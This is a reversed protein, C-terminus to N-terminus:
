QPPSGKKAARGQGPNPPLLPNSPPDVPNTPSISKKKGRPPLLQHKQAEADISVWQAEPDPVLTASICPLSLRV